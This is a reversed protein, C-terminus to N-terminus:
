ENFFFLKVHFLVFLAVTQTFYTRSDFSCAYICLILCLLPIYLPALLLALNKSKEFFAGIQWNVVAFPVEGKFKYDLWVGDCSSSFFHESLNM